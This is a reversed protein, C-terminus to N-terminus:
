GDVKIAEKPPNRPIVTIYMEWDFQEAQYVYNKGWATFTQPAEYCYEKDFEADLDFDIVCYEDPILALLLDDFSDGTKVFEDQLMKRYTTITNM